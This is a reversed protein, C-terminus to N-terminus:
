SRFVWDDNRFQYRGNLCRQAAELAPHETLMTLVEGIFHTGGEAPPQRHMMVQTFIPVFAPGPVDPGRRVSGAWTSRTATALVPAATEDALQNARRGAHFHLALFADLDMAALPQTESRWSGDSFTLGTEAAVRPLIPTREEPQLEPLDTPWSAVLRTGVLREIAEVVHRYLLLTPHDPILFMRRDRFGDLIFDSVRVECDFHEEQAILKRTSYAFVQRIGDESPFEARAHRSFADLDWFQRSLDILDPFYWGHHGWFRGKDAGPAHGHWELWPFRITSVGAEACAADLFVTNYDGKNQIPSYIVADYDRLREYPFPKGSAVVQFNILLDVEHRGQPGLEDILRKIILAHCGGYVLLRM